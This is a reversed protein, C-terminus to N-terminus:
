NHLLVFTYAKNVNGETSQVINTWFLNSIAGSKDTVAISTLWHVMYKNADNYNYDRMLKNDNM